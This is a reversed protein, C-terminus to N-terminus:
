NLPKHQMGPLPELREVSRQVAANLKNAAANTAALLAESNCPCKQPPKPRNTCISVFLAAALILLIGTLIM